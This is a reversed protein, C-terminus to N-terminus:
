QGGEGEGEGEGEGGSTCVKAAQVHCAEHQPSGDPFKECNDRDFGICANRGATTTCPACPDDQQAPPCAVLLGALAALVAVLIRM